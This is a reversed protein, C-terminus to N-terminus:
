ECTIYRFGSCAGADCVAGSGMVRTPKNLQKRDIISWSRAREYGKWKCWENAPKARCQRGWKYCMNLVSGKYKPYYFTEVEAFSHGSSLFLIPFIIIALLKKM